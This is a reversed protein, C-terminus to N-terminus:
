RLSKGTVFGAGAGARWRLWLWGGCGVRPVLSVLWWAM